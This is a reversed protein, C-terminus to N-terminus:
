LGALPPVLQVTLKWYAVKERKVKEKCEKGQGGSFFTLGRDRSLSQAADTQRTCCSGRSAPNRCQVCPKEQVNTLM